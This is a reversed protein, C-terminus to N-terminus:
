RDVRWFFYHDILNTQRNVTFWGNTVWSVWLLENTTPTVIPILNPTPWQVGTGNTSIFPWNTTHFYMVNTINVSNSGIPFYGMGSDYNVVPAFRISRFEADGGLNFYVKFYEKTNYNVMNQPPYVAKNITIFQNTSKDNEYLYGSFLNTVINTLVVDPIIYQIVVYACYTQNSPELIPRFTFSFDYRPASPPVESPYFYTVIQNTSCTIVWNTDIVSKSWPWNATIPYRANFPAFSDSKPEALFVQPNDPIPFFLENDYWQAIVEGQNLWYSPFINTTVSVIPVTGGHTLANHMVLLGYQPSFDLIPEPPSYVNTADFAPSMRNESFLTNVDNTSIVECCSPFPSEFYNNKIRTHAAEILCIGGRRSTGLIDCREITTQSGYTDHNYLHVHRANAAFRCVDITNIDCGDFFIGVGLYRFESDRIDADFLKTARFGIGFAELEATTVVNTTRFNPDVSAGNTYYSGEIIVNHISFGMATAEYPFYNTGSQNLKIGNQAHLLLDSFRTNFWLQYGTANTTSNYEFAFAGSINTIFTSNRGAGQIWSDPSYPITGNIIYSGTPFYVHNCTVVANSIAVTDDTTGNGLAGFWKVNAPETFQRKWSYSATTSAFKIGTNTGVQDNVLTFLGGRNTDSVFVNTHIDGIRSAVLDDITNVTKVFRQANVTLCLMMLALIPFRIRKM